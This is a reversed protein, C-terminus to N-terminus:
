RLSTSMDNPEKQNGHNMRRRASRGALTRKRARLKKEPYGAAAKRLRWEAGNKVSNTELKGCPIKGVLFLLVDSEAM